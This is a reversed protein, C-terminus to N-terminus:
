RRPPAPLSLSSPLSVSRCQGGHRRRRLSYWAHDHFLFIPPKFNRTPSFKLSWIHPFLSCNRRPNTPQEDEPKSSFILHYPQRITTAPPGQPCSLTTISHWYEARPRLNPADLLLLSPFLSIADHIHMYVLIDVPALLRATVDKARTTGEEGQRGRRGRLYCSPHHSSRQARGDWSLHDVATCPQLRMPALASLFSRKRHHMYRSCAMVHVSSFVPVRTPVPLPDLSSPPGRSPQTLSASPADGRHPTSRRLTVFPMKHNHGDLIGGNYPEGKQGARLLQLGLGDNPM